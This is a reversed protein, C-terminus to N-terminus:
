NRGRIRGSPFRDWVSDLMRHRLEGPKRPTVM